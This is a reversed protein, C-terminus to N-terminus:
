TEARDLLLEASQLLKERTTSTLGVNAAAYRIKRSKQVESQLVEVFIYKWVCYKQLTCYILVVGAQNIHWVLLHM